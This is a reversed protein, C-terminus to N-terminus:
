GFVLELSNDNANPCQEADQFTGLEQLINLENRRQYGVKPFIVFDNHSDAGDFQFFDITLATLYVRFGSLGTLSIEVKWVM